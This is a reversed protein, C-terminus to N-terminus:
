DFFFLISEGNEQFVIFSAFIHGGGFDLETDSFERIKLASFESIQVETELVIKSGFFTSGSIATNTVHIIGSINLFNGKWSRDIPSSGTINGSNFVL